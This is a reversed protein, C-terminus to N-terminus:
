WSEPSEPEEGEADGYEGEDTEQLIEKKIQERDEDSIKLVKRRVWAKSFEKGILPEVDNYLSIKQVLNDTEMNELFVNEKYFSITIHKRIENWESENAILGKYLMHRKLADRFTRLFQRRLKQIFSFFKIEERSVQSSTYDVDVYQTDKEDNVRTLPIKLASYLKKRFYVIDGLEGLNGSEDLTDVTTGKSGERNQFWYDEVLSAVHMQNSITGKEVDYFKKYKFKDKIKTLAAEAKTAPLDGVDVNFVRRSVSRSFRMPILMDELTVLQNHVKIANHLYSKVIKYGENNVDAASDEFLESSIYIIEEATYKRGEDPVKLEKRGTLGAVLEEAYIWYSKDKNYTLFKPELVNFGVIGKNLDSNDYVVNIALQGDVYWKEFLYGINMEIDFIDEIEKFSEIIANCTRETLETEDVSIKLTKLQGPTFIAENVIEDVAMRGEPSNSIRRYENILDAQQYLVGTRSSRRFLSLTQDDTEDYFGINPNVSDHDVKVAKDVHRVDVDQDTLTTPIKDKFLKTKLAEALNM